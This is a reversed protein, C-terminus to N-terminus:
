AAEESRMEYETLIMGYVRRNYFSRDGEKYQAIRGYDDCHLISRGTMINIAIAAAKSRSQGYNCHVIINQKDTIVESVFLILFLYVVFYSLIYKVM